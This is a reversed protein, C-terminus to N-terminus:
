YTKAISTSAEGETDNREKRPWFTRGKCCEETLSTQFMQAKNDRVEVSEHKEDDNAMLVTDKDDRM